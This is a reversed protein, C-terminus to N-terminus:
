WGPNTWPPAWLTPTPPLTRSRPSKMARPTASGPNQQVYAARGADTLTYTKDSKALLGANTLADFAPQNASSTGSMVSDSLTVPFSNFMAAKVCSAGELRPQLAAQIDADSPSDSCATLLLAAATILAMERIRM